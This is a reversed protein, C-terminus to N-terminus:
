IRKKIWKSRTTKNGCKAVESWKLTDEVYKIEDESYYNTSVINDLSLLTRKVYNLVSKNSVLTLDEVNKLNYATEKTYKLFNLWQASIPIDKKRHVSNILKLSEIM